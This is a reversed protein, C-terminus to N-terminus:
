NEKLNDPCDEPPNIKIDKKVYTEISEKAINILYDGDEKKIM